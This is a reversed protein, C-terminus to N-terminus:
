LDLMMDFAQFLDCGILELDAEGVQVDQFEFGGLKVSQIFYTQVDNPGIPSMGQLVPGSKVKGARRLIGITEKNLTLARGFGTDFVAKQKGIIPLEVFVKPSKFLHDVVPLLTWNTLSQDSMDPQCINDRLDIRLMIDQVQEVGVVGNTLFGAKEMYRSERYAIDSRRPPLGFASVEIGPIRAVGRVGTAFQIDEKSIRWTPDPSEFLSRPGTVNMVSSGTDFKFIGKYPGYQATVCPAGNRRTYEANPIIDRDDCRGADVFLCWWLGLICVNFMLRQSTMTDEM